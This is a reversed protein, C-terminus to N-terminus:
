AKKRTSSYSKKRRQAMDLYINIGRRISESVPVRLDKQVERLRALQEKTIWITIKTSEM